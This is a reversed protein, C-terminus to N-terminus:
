IRYIQSRLSSKNNVQSEADSTLSWMRPMMAVKRILDRIFSYTDLWNKFHELTMGEM